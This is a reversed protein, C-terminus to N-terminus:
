RLGVLSGNTRPPPAALQGARALRQRPVYWGMAEAAEGTHGHHGKWASLAHQVVCRASLCIVESHCPLAARRMQWPRGGVKRGSGKRVQERFRNMAVPSGEGAEPVLM